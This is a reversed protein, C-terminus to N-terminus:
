WLVHRATEVLDTMSRLREPSKEAHCAPDAAANQSPRLPLKNLQLLMRNIEEFTRFHQDKVPLPNAALSWFRAEYNKSDALGGPRSQKKHRPPFFRSWLPCCLSQGTSFV